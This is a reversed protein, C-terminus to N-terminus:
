CCEFRFWFSMIQKGNGVTSQTVQSEVTKLHLVKSAICIQIKNNNGNNNNLCVVCVCVTKVIMWRIQDGVENGNEFCVILTSFDTSFVSQVLYVVFTRCSSVKATWCSNSITHILM